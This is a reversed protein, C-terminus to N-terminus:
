DQNSRVAKTQASPLPAPEVSYYFWFLVSAAWSSMEIICISLLAVASRQHAMRLRPFFVAPDGANFEQLAVKGMGMTANSSADFAM